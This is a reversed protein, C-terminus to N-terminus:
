GGPTPAIPELCGTVLSIRPCVEEDWGHSLAPAIRRADEADRGLAFYSTGSGSMRQGAPGLAEVRQRITAVLPCLMEAPEQLRNHLHRGLEVLDGAEFARRIAEG